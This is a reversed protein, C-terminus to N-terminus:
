YKKAAKLGWLCIAGDAAGSALLPYNEVFELSTIEGKHELFIM